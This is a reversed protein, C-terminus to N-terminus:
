RDACPPGISPVESQLKLHKGLAEAEHSFISSLAVFRKNCVHQSEFANIFVDHHIAEFWWISGDDVTTPRHEPGQLIGSRYISLMAERYRHTSIPESTEWNFDRPSRATGFRVLSHHGGVIEIGEAGCCSSEWIFRYVNAGPEPSHSLSGLAPFNRDFLKSLRETGKWSPASEAERLEYVQAAVYTVVGVLVASALAWAAINKM